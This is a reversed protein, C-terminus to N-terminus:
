IKNVNALNSVIFYNEREDNVTIPIIKNSKFDYTCFTYGNQEVFSIIEIPTTGSNILARNIELQIVDVNKQTLLYIGGKLVDLEFGEVDIKVFDIRNINHQNCYDDLCVVNIISSNGGFNSPVLHNEGDFGITMKMKGNQKSVAVNNTHFQGKFQNISINQSLRKFNKTDPEFSHIQGLEDISRSIWITYFGMNAGIDFVISNKRLYYHIFLFEEWDVIYNYMLWMSQFSDHNIYFFRNNWFKVKLNQLKFLRILKWSLFRVFAKIPYEKNFPASILFKYSSLM